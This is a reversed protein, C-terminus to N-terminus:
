FKIRRSSAEAELERVIVYDMYNTRAYQICNKLHADTLESMPVYSYSSDVWVNPPRNYEIDAATPANM